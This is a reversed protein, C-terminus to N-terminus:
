AGLLRAFAVAYALAGTAVDDLDVSEHATHALAIDGPGCLVVDAGADAFFRADSAGRFGILEADRDTADSVASVVERVVDSSEDVEFPDAYFMV